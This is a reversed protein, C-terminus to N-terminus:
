VKLLAFAREKLGVVAGDVSRVARNYSKEQPTKGSVPSAHDLYETVAQYAGWRTGRIATNNEGALFLKDLATARNEAPRSRGGEDDEEVKFIEDCVKRFADMAIQENIMKEAEAEFAEVYAFTLELGERIENVRDSAGETHRIKFSSRAERLAAAQTNACVIRVATILARIAASGTHNNLLAIYLGLQDVGGVLMTKPLKMTVFVDGGGRMTGATEMNAGSESAIAQLTAVLAENQFAKYDEGVVGGPVEAAAGIVEDLGTAPNRRITVYKGLVKTMTVGSGSMIPTYLDNKRVNWDGLMAFKMVDDPSLGDPVKTGLRHWADINNGSVFGTRGDEFQELEHM